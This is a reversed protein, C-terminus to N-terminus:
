AGKTGTGSAMNVTGSTDSNRKKDLYSSQNPMIPQKSNNAVQQSLTNVAETLNDVKSSVGQIGGKIEEVDQDQKKNQVPIDVSRNIEKQSLKSTAVMPESQSVKTKLNNQALSPSIYKPLKVGYPSTEPNKHWQDIRWKDLKELVGNYKTGGTFM